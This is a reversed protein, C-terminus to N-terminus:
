VGENILARFARVIESFPTAGGHEVTLCFFRDGIQVFADSLTCTSAERMMFAGGDFHLPPLVELFHWYLKETTEFWQGAKRVDPGYGRNIMAFTEDHNSVGGNGILDFIM